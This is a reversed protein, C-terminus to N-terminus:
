DDVADVFFNFERMETVAPTIIEHTVPDVVAPTIEVERMDSAKCLPYLQAKTYDTGQVTVQKEVFSVPLMNARNKQGAATVDAERTVKNKYCGFKVYTTGAEENILRSHIFWYNPTYGKWLFNKIFAM